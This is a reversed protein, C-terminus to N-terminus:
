TSCRIVFHEKQQHNRKLLIGARFLDISIHYEPQNMIEKWLKFMENSRRIGNILIITEDHALSEILSLSERIHNINWQSGNILIFDFTPFNEKSKLYHIFSDNIFNVRDKRSSPFNSRAFTFLDECAEITIINAENNGSSLMYTRLGTETGLELINKVQYHSTMRFLLKGRRSNMGSKKIIQRITFDQNLKGSSSEAENIHVSTKDKLFVSKLHKFVHLDEESVSSKLCKDCFNYVFPSHIGHRRKANLQYKIYECFINIMNM